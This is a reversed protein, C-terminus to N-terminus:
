LVQQLISRSKFVWRGRQIVVGQRFAKVIRRLFRAAPCHESSAQEQDGESENDDVRVVTREETGNGQHDDGGDAQRGKKKLKPKSPIDRPRDMGREPPTNQSYDKRHGGNERIHEMEAGPQHQEGSETCDDTKSDASRNYQAGQAPLLVLRRAEVSM